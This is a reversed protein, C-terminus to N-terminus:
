VIRTASLVVPPNSNRTLIGARFTGEPYNLPIRPVEPSKVSVGPMKDVM